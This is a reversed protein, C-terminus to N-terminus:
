PGTSATAPVGARSYLREKCWIHTAPSWETASRLDPFFGCGKRNASTNCLLPIGSLQYYAQLLETMVANQDGRITQLRATGDVHEIAPVLASWAPRVKHTYLMYPDPGGPAFVRTAESELCIPAVPRYWERAKMANLVDKAEPATASCLISRNGLARPGLEARGDLFVVPEHSTHLFDALAKIDCHSSSWRAPARSATLAPGRYVDWEISAGEGCHVLDAVACGLASGADNPFPPIWIEDFLGSERLQTNWTINLACGGAFCMRRPLDHVRTSMHEVARVLRRGIWVQFSAVADEDKAGLERAHDWAARAFTFTFEFGLSFKERYIREFGEILQDSVTGFGAWAMAKGPLDLLTSTPLSAHQPPQAGGPVFPGFHSAFVPYVHGHFGLPQRLLRCSRARPDFLYLRPFMAGDWILILAPEESAAWPSTAYAGFAHDAAHTYSAYDVTQDGLRLGRCRLPRLPDSHRDTEHYPAVPVGDANGDAWGDVLVRDVESLAIGYHELTKLVDLSSLSSHRALNSSKEAEHSFVLAAGDLLALGGDHTLKVGLRIMQLGYASAM